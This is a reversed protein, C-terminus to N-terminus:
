GDTAGVECCGGAAEWLRGSVCGLPICTTTTPQACPGGGQSGGGGGASGGGRGELRCGGGCVKWGGGGGGLKSLFSPTTADRGTATARGQAGWRPHLLGPPSPVWASPSHLATCYVARPLQAQTVGSYAFQHMTVAPPIHPWVQGRKPIPPPPARPRPDHGCLAAPAVDAAQDVVQQMSYLLHGCRYHHTWQSPILVARCGGHHAHCEALYTGQAWRFHDKAWARQCVWERAVAVRWSHKSRQLVTPVM